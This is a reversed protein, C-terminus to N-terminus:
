IKVGIKMLEGYLRHYNRQKHDFFLAQIGIRKAAECNSMSNDIFLVENATVDARRLGEYFPKKDTKLAMVDESTIMYDFLGDFGYNKSIANMREKTNNTIIGLFYGQAKIKRAIKTMEQDIPANSFAEKRMDKFRAYSMSVGLASYFARWSEDLSIKGIYLDWVRGSEKYARLVFNYDLGLRKVVNRSTTEVEFEM